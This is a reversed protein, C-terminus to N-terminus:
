LNTSEAESLVELGSFLRSVASPQALRTLSVTSPQPLGTLAGDRTELLTLAKEEKGIRIASVSSSQLKRHKGFERGIPGGTSFDTRKKFNFM